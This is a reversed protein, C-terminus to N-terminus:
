SSGATWEVLQWVFQAYDSGVEVEAVGPIEATVRDPGWDVLPGVWHPAVDTMLAATRGAGCEGIVLLPDVDAPTLVVDGDQIRASYHAATLITAAGPKATTRNLGGILPPREEWPLGSTIAHSVAWRAFVPHDCNLRDDTGAIAVPLVDSLSTGDWDGGIGHFSEWGGIMLLGSGKEVDKVIREQLDSSIRAAPYDSLIYLSRPQQLHQETLPEDSALYEFHCGRLTLLGALYAAATDLTTDGMYLISGSM